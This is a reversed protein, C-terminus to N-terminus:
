KGKYCADKKSFKVGAERLRANRSKRAKRRKTKRANCRAIIKKHEDTFKDKRAM